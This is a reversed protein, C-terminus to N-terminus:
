VTFRRCLYYKSYATQQLNELQLAQYIFDPLYEDFKVEMLQQGKPMVPRKLIEELLFNETEQSSSVNTDFTVRVNGNKYVYPVRDYEVIVKPKMGRRMMDLMLKNFVPPTENTIKLYKGNILEDCQEKTIICSKKLTKGREKRKCELSIREDSYNYIRIRFKERPDTGNENEYYCSNYYDDFYLSRINYQGNQTHKDKPMIASVRMKLLEMQQDSILYKLEHRYKPENIM